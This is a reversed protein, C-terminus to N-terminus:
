EEVEKKRIAKTEIEEVIQRVFESLPKSGEDGAFRSRVSVANEEEEKAGLVLMYPIKEMQAKRIKYGIRETSHDVHVDVGNRRLERFVKEAYDDYKDSIPYSGTGSLAM